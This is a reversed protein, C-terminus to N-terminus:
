VGPDIHVPGRGGWVRVNQLSKSVEGTIPLDPTYHQCETGLRFRWKRVRSAGYRAVLHRVLDGVFAGFEAPDDPAAGNGYSVYFRNEPRVFAFPVNDLVIMYHEVKGATVYGDLTADIRSWNYVLGTGNAARTVVEFDLNPM